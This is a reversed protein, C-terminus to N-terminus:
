RLLLGYGWRVRVLEIECDEVRPLVGIEHAAAGLDGVGGLDHLRGDLQDRLGLRVDVLILRALLRLSHRLRARWSVRMRGKLWM